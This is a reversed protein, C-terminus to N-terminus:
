SAPPFPTLVPVPKGRALLLAVAKARRLMLRGAVSVIEGTEAGEEIGDFKERVEAASHSRDFSYPITKESM